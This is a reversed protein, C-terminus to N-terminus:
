CVAKEDVPLAKWKEAAKQFVDKAAIDPYELQLLACAVRSSHRTFNYLTARRVKISERVESVFLNYGTMARKPKVVAESEGRTQSDLECM